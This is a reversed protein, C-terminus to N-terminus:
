KQPPVDMPMDIIQYGLPVLFLDSAPEERKINELRMIASDTNPDTRKLLLAMGLEKSIWREDISVVERGNDQEESPWTFTSRGGQAEIGQFTQTGLMEHKVTPKGKPTKGGPSPIGFSSSMEVPRGDPMKPFVIRHAIQKPTELAYMVGVIPDHIMVFVEEMGAAADFRPTAGERLHGASDRYVRHSERTETFKGDTGVRTSIIVQDASFPVNPVPLAAQGFATEYCCVALVVWLRDRLHGSM